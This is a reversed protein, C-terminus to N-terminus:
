TLSRPSTSANQRPRSRLEPRTLAANAATAHRDQCLTAPGACRALRSASSVARMGQVGRPGAARRRSRVVRKDEARADRGGSAPRFESRPGRRQGGAGTRRAGCNAQEAEIREGNLSQQGPQGRLDASEGGLGIGCGAAGATQGLWIFSAVRIFSAALLIGAPPPVGAGQAAEAVQGRVTRRRKLQEGIEM